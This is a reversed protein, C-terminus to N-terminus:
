PPTADGAAPPSAAMLMLGGFKAPDFPEGCEPCRPQTLGRLSYGCMRCACDAQLVVVARYTQFVIVGM